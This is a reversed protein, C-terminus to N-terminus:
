ALYGEFTVNDVIQRALVEQEASKVTWCFIAAGTAKLEAVRPAKLDDVNHSIFSAGVNEYEPVGALEALWATDVDPWEDVLFPDTVLGRPIDPAFEACKAVAHPNFSMLAVPGAYGKLDECVAREMEGTNPGLAGDQDKIEILLPVVGDVLTLFDALMPISEDGHSLRMATLEGATYDRVLGVHRTLRQLQDDHFVMPVGDSSLQLDIELGYNAAIAAQAGSISNEPRRARVDHLTRHALPAKKFAELM